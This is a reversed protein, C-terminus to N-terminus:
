NSHRMPSKPLSEKNFSIILILLVAFMMGGSFLVSIAAGDNLSVYYLLFMSQLGILIDASNCEITIDVWMIILALLAAVLFVGLVGLNAYADAMFGTNTWMEPRGFYVDGILNPINESYNSEFGLLKAFTSQSFYVFKHTSFYDFYAFKIKAPLFLVRENVLAYPYVQGFVVYMLSCLVSVGPLAFTMLRNLNISSLISVAILVLPIFLYTKFGTIAFTYLQVTLVLAFGIWRRTKFLIMLMIPCVIRCLFNQLIAMLTSMSSNARIDSIGEWSLSSFSPLGYQKFAYAFYGLLMIVVVVKLNKSTYPIKSSKIKVKPALKDMLVHMFILALAQVLLMWFKVASNYEYYVFCPVLSLMFVTYVFLTGFNTKNSAVCFVVLLYLTWSLVWRLMDPEFGFGYYGFLDKHLFAYTLDLVIKYVIFWFVSKSKDSIALRM